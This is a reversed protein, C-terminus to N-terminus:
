KSRRDTEVAVVVLISGVLLLLDEVVPRSCVPLSIKEEEVPKSNM